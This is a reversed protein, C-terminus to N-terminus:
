NEQIHVQPHSQRVWKSSSSSWKVKGGTLSLAQNGRAASINNLVQQTDGQGEPNQLLELGEEPILRKM